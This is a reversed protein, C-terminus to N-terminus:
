FQESKEILDEILDEDVGDLMVNRGTTLILTKIDGHLLIKRAKKVTFVKNDKASDYGLSAFGASSRGDKPLKRAYQAVKDLTKESYGQLEKTRQFKQYFWQMENVLINQGERKSTLVRDLYFQKHLGQGGKSVDFRKWRRPIDNAEGQKYSKIEIITSNESNNGNLTIDSFRDYSTGNEELVGFDNRAYLYVKFRQEIATVRDEDRLTTEYVLHKFALMGVHFLHGNEFKGGVKDINENLSSTFAKVYLKELENDIGASLPICNGIAEADCVPVNRSELYSLIALITLPSMRLNNNKTIYRRLANGGALFGTLSIPSFAIKREGKTAAEKTYKTVNKVSDVLKGEKLKGGKGNLQRAARLLGRAFIASKVRGYNLGKKRDAYAVGIVGNLPSFYNPQLDVAATLGVEPPEGDGEWGDAPLSLYDLWAFFDDDSQISNIMVMLGARAEEDALMEGVLMMFLGLNFATDYKGQLVDDGVRGLVRGIAKIFKPNSSKLPRFFAKLANKVPILPKLIPVITLVGIGSITLEMPDFRKDDDILYNVQEYFTKIDEFPLLVNAATKLNDWVDDFSWDFFGAHAVGMLPFPTYNKYYNMAVPPYGPPQETETYFSAFQGYFQKSIVGIFNNQSQTQLGVRITSAQEGNQNLKGTSIVKVAALTEDAAFTYNKETTGDEFTVLPQADYDYAKFSSLKGSFNEGITLGRQTVSYALEGTADQSNLHGNVELVLKGNHYKGAVTHWNELSIPADSSVTAKGNKTFLSYTLHGDNELTLNQVGGEFDFISGGYESPKIDLRFGVSNKPKFQESQAVTVRSSEWVNAPNLIAQKNFQYSNGTGTPNDAVLTIHNNVGHHQQNFDVAKDEYNDNFIYAAIPQINPEALSGLKLSETHGASGHLMINAETKYALGLSAGDFRDYEYYGNSTEDGVLMTGSTDAYNDISPAVKTVALDGKVLGVRATIEINDLSHFGSYLELTLEGNANTSRSGHKFKGASAHMVVQMGSVAPGGPETVKVTVPYSSRPEMQTPYEEITVTLPSVPFTLQRTADGASVLLTNDSEPMSGGVIFAKARGNITGDDAMELKAAGNIAFSVSTGDAVANGHADEIYVEIEKGKHGEIFVEGENKTFNIHHPKGPIVEIAGLKVVNDADLYAYPEARAGAQTNMHIDAPFVGQRQYSLDEDEVTAAGNPKWKLKLPAPNERNAYGLIIAQVPVVPDDASVYITGDEGINDYGAWRTDVAVAEFAYEWLVNTPDNNNYLSLTVFDEVDLAAIHELNTFILQNGPGMKAKIENAGLSFVLEQGEGLFELADHNSEILDYMFKVLSDGAAIMPVEKQYIESTQGDQQARLISNVELDYTSFQLEPRYVWRYIPEPKELNDTQGEEKLKKYLYTQELTALQDLVPVKFPVYHKPRYQLPGSDSAGGDAFSPNARKPEGSVQIYYHDAPTADDPLKIQVIHTGPKIDFHEMVGGSSLSGSGDIKALRGTYGFDALGDPLPTGDHEYWQTTITIMQDSNMASGEYGIIHKQQENSASPGENVKYYREAKIKLNPAQMSVRNLNDLVLGGLYQNKYLNRNSGIYGTKRNILVTRLVEGQKLHDSERNHLAPNMNANSQFRNFGDEGWNKPHYSQATAAPGRIMMQYIFGRGIAEYYSRSEMLENENIGKRETILMGTSERFILIDTDQLDDTSITELLGQDTFDPMKDALRYLDPQTAEPESDECNIAVGQSHESSLYVGQYEADKSDKKCVFLENEIDGLVALDYKFDGDFDYRPNAVPDLDPQNYVYKTPGEEVTVGNSQLSAVGSIVGTDVYFNSSPIVPIAIGAIIGIVEVHAMLGVLDTQGMYADYGICADYGPIKSVDLLPKVGNPTFAIYEYTMWAPTTYQFYFGPCPVLGFQVKYSGDEGSYDPYGQYAYVEVKAGEFPAYLKKDKLSKLIPPIGNNIEDEDGDYFGSKFAINKDSAYIKKGTPDFLVAKVNSSVSSMNTLDFRSLLLIHGDTPHIVSETPKIVVSKYYNPLTVKPLDLGGVTKFEESNYQEISLVRVKKYENKFADLANFTSNIHQGSLIYFGQKHVTSWGPVIKGDAGYEVYSVKGDQMDLGRALVHGFRVRHVDLWGWGQAFWSSFSATILVIFIIIISILKRM